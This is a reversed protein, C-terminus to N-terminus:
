GQPGSHLLRRREEAVKERGEETNRFPFVADPDSLQAKPCWCSTCQTTPCVTSSHTGDLSADILAQQDPLKFDALDDPDPLVDDPIDQPVPDPRGHHQGRIYILPINWVYALYIVDNILSLNWTFM